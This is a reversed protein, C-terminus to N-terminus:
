VFLIYDIWFYMRLTSYLRLMYNKVVWLNNKSSLYQTQFGHNINTIEEGELLSFFFVHLKAHQSMNWKDKFVLQEKFLLRTKREAM